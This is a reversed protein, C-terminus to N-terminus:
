LLRFTLAFTAPTFREVEAIATTGSALIALMGANAAGDTVTDAARLRTGPVQMLVNYMYQGSPITCVTADGALCIALMGSPITLSEQYGPYTMYVPVGTIPLNTAQDFGLRLSWNYQPWAILPPTRNDNQWTICYRARAAEAVTDPLKVGPVDSLRGTLDGPFPLGPNTTYLVMRGEVIAETTVVGTVDQVKNIEM